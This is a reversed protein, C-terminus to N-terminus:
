HGACSSSPLTLAPRLGGSLMGSRVESELMRGEQLNRNFDLREQSGSAAESAAPRKPDPSMSSEPSACDQLLCRIIVAVGLFPLVSLASCGLPARESPGLSQPINSM